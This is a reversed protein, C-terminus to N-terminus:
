QSPSVLYENINPCTISRSDNLHVSQGEHRQDQKVAVHGVEVWPNGGNGRINGIALLKDAKVYLVIVLLM